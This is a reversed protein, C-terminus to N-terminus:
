AARAKAIWSEVALDIPNYQIIEALQTMAAEM